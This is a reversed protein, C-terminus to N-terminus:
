KKNYKKRLMKEDAHKDNKFLKAARPRFPLMNNRDLTLDRGLHYYAINGFNVLLEIFQSPEVNKKLDIFMQEDEPNYDNIEPFPSMDTEDCISVRCLYEYQEKTFLSEDYSMLYDTDVLRKYTRLEFEEEDAYDDYEEYIYIRTTYGNSVLYRVLKMNGLRMVLGIISSLFWGDEPIDRISAGGMELLKVTEFSGSRIAQHILEAAGGGLHEFASVDGIPIEEEIDSNATQYAIKVNEGEVMQYVRMKASMGNSLYHKVVEPHGWRVALVFRLHHSAKFIKSMFQGMEISRCRKLSEFVNVGSPIRLHKDTLLKEMYVLSNLNVAQYYHEETSLMVWVDHVYNDAVIRFLKSVSRMTILDNISGVSYRIIHAIQNHQM